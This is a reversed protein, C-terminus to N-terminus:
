SSQESKGTREDCFKRIAQARKAREFACERMACLFMSHLNSELTSTRQQLWGEVALRSAPDRELEEIKWQALRCTVENRLLHIDRQVAAIEAHYRSWSVELLDDELLLEERKESCEEVFAGM